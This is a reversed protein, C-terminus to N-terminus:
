EFKLNLRFSDVVVEGPCDSWQGGEFLGTRSGTEKRGQRRIRSLQSCDISLLALHPSNRRQSLPYCHPVKQHTSKSHSSYGMQVVSSLSTAFSLQYLLSASQTSLVAKGLQSKLPCEPGTATEGHIQRSAM